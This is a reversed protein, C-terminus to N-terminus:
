IFSEIVVLSITSLLYIISHIGYRRLRARFCWSITSFLVASGAHAYRVGFLVVSMVKSLRPEPTEQSEQREPSITALLRVDSSHPTKRLVASITLPNQFSYQM